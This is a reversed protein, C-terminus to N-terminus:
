SECERIMNHLFEDLGRDGDVKEINTAIIIM